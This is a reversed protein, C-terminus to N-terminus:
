RLFRVKAPGHIDVTHRSCSCLGSSGVGTKEDAVTLSTVLRAAIYGAAGDSHGYPTTRVPFPDSRLFPDTRIDTSVPWCPPNTALYFQCCM